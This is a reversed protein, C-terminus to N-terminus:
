LDSPFDYQFRMINGFNERSLELISCAKMNDNPATTELRKASFVAPGMKKDDNINIKRLAGNCSSVTGYVTNDHRKHEDSFDGINNKTDTTDLQEEILDAQVGELHSMGVYPHVSLLNEAMILISSFGFNAKEKM